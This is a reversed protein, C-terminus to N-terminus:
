FIEKKKGFEKYEKKKVLHKTSDIIFKYIKSIGIWIDATSVPTPMVKDVMCKNYSYQVFGFLNRDKKDILNKVNQCSENLRSVDSPNKLLEQIYMNNKLHRYIQLIINFYIKYLKDNSLFDILESHTLKYTNKRERSSKLTPWIWWAWCATKKGNEIQKLADGAKTGPERPHDPKMKDPTLRWDTPEGNNYRDEFLEIKKSM